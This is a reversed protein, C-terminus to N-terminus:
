PEASSSNPVVMPTSSTFDTEWTGVYVNGDPTALMAMGHFMTADGKLPFAEFQDTSKNLHYISAEGQNCLMWVQNNADVLTCKVKGQINKM